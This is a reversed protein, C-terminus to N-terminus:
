ARAKQRLLSENRKWRGGKARMVMGAGKKMMCTENKKFADYTHTYTHTHSQKNKNLKSEESHCACNSKM